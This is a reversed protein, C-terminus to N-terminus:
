KDKNEYWACDNNKNIVNPSSNYKIRETHEYFTDEYEIVKNNDHTCCYECLKNNDYM